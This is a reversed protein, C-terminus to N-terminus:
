ERARYFTQKEDHKEKSSKSCNPADWCCISSTTKAFSDADQLVDFLLM